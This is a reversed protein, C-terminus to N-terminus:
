LCGAAPGVCFPYENSLEAQPTQLQLLHTGSPPLAPLTVRVVNSSCYVPAFSGGQCTITAAVPVGDVLAVADARVTQGSLTMVTSASLVPLPPDGTAGNGTTSTALLPQAFDARGVNARLQSTFTIRTTGAEAEALLAARTLAVGGEGSYLSTDSRFSLTVPAGNRTGHGLLNAVGRLDAIELMALRATTQALLAAGATRANVTVQRGIAGSHGTSAEEFMQFMATPFVNYVPQFGVFTGAFVILEDLGIAPDWPIVGQNTFPAVTDLVEEPSTFGGSFQLFRDTMGRMTPADFGGVAVSNTSTGLPLSHCGGTTDACTNATNGGNGGQNMFFDAFGNRASTTIADTAPRSRAPPYSVSQLYTAIDEREAETLAGPLGTPGIPCNPQECM